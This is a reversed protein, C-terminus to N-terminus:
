LFHVLFSISFIAVIISQCFACPFRCRQPRRQTCNGVWPEADSQETPVPSDVPQDGPLVELVDESAM